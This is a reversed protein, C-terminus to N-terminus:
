DREETRLFFNGQSESLAAPPSPPVPAQPLPPRAAPPPRAPSPWAVRTEPPPRRAAPPAPPVRSAPPPRGAPAPLRAPRPRSEAAVRCDPPPRGAGAPPRAPSPLGCDPPPRGPRWAVRSKALRAAPPPLRGPWEPPPSGATPVRCLRLPTPASPRLALPLYKHFTFPNTIHISKHNTFKPTLSFYIQSKHIKIQPKLLPYFPFLFIVSLHPM